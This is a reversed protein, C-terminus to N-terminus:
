YGTINIKEKDCRAVFFDFLYKIVDDLVQRRLEEKLLCNVHLILTLSFHVQYNKLIWLHEVLIFLRKTHFMDEITQSVGKM